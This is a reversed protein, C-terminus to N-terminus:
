QLPGVKNVKLELAADGDFRMALMLFGDKAVETRRADNSHDPADSRPGIHWFSTPRSRRMSKSWCSESVNQEPANLNATNLKVERQAAVNASLDRRGAEGSNRRAM